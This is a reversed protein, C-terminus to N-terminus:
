KDTFPNYSLDLNRLQAFGALNLNALRCQSCRLDRLGTWTLLERIDADDVEMQANFHWGFALREVGPNTGLAKFVGTKDENGAGPNWVPGPLYLERLHTLGEIKRLEAPHMVGATLDIAAIHFEGSPLQSVDTLPQVAGELRVTGEWRLVWEAIERESAAQATGM